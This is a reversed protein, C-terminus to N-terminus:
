RGREPEDIYDIIPKDYEDILLVVKDGQNAGALLSGFDQKLSKGTLIVGLKHAIAKVKQHLVYELGLTSYDLTAFRFWIVPRQRAAFDWRQEIWLGRFLSADGGYLESITSCLLSKGFRRPRSLFYYGGQATIGYIQATKDIYLFDEERLKRFDHIGVPYKNM